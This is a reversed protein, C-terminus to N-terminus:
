RRSPRLGNGIGAAAFQILVAPVVLVVTQFMWLKFNFVPQYSDLASFPGWADLWAWNNGAFVGAIFSFFSSLGRGYYGALVAALEHGPYTRGGYISLGLFILQLTMVLFILSFQRHNRM